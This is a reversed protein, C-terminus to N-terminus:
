GAPSDYIGLKDTTLAHFSNMAFSKGSNSVYPENRFFIAEPMCGASFLVFALSLCGAKLM